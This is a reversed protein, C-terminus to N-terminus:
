NQIQIKDLRNHAILQASTPGQSLLVGSFLQIGKLFLSFALNNKGLSRKMM